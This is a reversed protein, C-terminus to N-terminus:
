PRCGCIRAEKRGAVTLARVELGEVLERRQDRSGEQRGMRCYGLGVMRALGKLLSRVVELSSDLDERDQATALDELSM